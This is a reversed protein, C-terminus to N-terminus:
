QEMMNKFSIEQLCYKLYLYDMVDVMVDIITSRFNLTEIM